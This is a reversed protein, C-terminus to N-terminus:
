QAPEKFRVVDVNSWAFFKLFRRRWCVLGRWFVNADSNKPNQTEGLVLVV